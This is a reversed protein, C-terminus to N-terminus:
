RDLMGETFETNSTSLALLTSLILSKSLSRSLFLVALIEIILSSLREDISPTLIKSRNFACFLGVIFLNTAIAKVGDFEIINDAFSKIVLFTSDVRLASSLSIVESSEISTM